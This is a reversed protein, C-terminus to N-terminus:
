FSLVAEMGKTIFDLTKRNESSVEQDKVTRDKGSPWPSKLSQGEDARETNLSKKRHPEYVQLLLEQETGKKLVRRQFPEREARWTEMQRKVWGDMWGDVRGNDMWRDMGWGDGM